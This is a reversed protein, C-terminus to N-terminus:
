QEVLNITPVIVAASKIKGSELQTAAIKVGIFSKGLGTVAVVVGRRDVAWAKIAELQLEHRNNQMTRRVRSVCGNLQM